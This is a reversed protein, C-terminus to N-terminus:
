MSPLLFRERFVASFSALSLFFLYGRLLEGEAVHPSLGPRVERRRIAADRVEMVVMGCLGHGESRM